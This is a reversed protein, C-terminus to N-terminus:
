RLQEKLSAVYSELYRVKCELVENTQELKAVEGSRKIDMRKLKELLQINEQLSEEASTRDRVADDFMRRLSHYSELNANNDDQMRVLKDRAEQLLVRLNSAEEMKMKLAEKLELKLSKTRIEMSRMQEKHDDLIKAKLQAIEANHSNESELTRAHITSLEANHENESELMQTHVTALEDEMAQLRSELNGIQEDKANESEM